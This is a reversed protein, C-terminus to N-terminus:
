FVIEVHLGPYDTEFSAKADTIRTTITYITLVDETLAKEYLQVVTEEADLAANDLWELMPADSRRSACGSFLLLAATLLLSLAKKSIKM